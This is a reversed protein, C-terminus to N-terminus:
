PRSNTTSLAEPALQKVNNVRVIRFSPLSSRRPVLPSGPTRALVVEARQGNRELRFALCDEPKVGAQAAWNSAEAPFMNTLPGFQARKNLIALGALSIEDQLAKRIFESQEAVTRAQLAAPLAIFQMLGNADPSSLAAHLSEISALCNRRPEDQKCRQWLVAAIVLVLLGLASISLDRKM